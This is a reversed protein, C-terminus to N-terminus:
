LKALMEMRDLLDNFYATSYEDLEMTGIYGLIEWLAVVYNEFSLNDYDADKAMKSIREDLENLYEDSM